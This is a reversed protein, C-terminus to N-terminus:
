HPTVFSNDFVVNPLIYTYSLTIYIYIYIIDFVVDEFVVYRFERIIYYLIICYLIIHCLMVYYLIICYLIIYCVIMYSIM